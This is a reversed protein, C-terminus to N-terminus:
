LASSDCPPHSPLIGKVKGGWFFPCYFTMQEIKERDFDEKRINRSELVKLEERATKLASGLSFKRRKGKWDKFAAYYMTHWRGTSTKYKRRYLHREVRKEEIQEAM